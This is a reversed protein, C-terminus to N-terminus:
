QFHLMVDIASDAFPAALYETHVQAAAEHPWDSTKTALWIKMLEPSYLKGQLDKWSVLLSKAAGAVPEMGELRLNGFSVPNGEDVDIVLRVIHRAEDVQAKPIAGFNVYGKSAYLDRLNELGRGIETSNFHEGTKSPFQSRLRDPTFVKTDEFVIEGLTYLAGPNVELTCDACRGGQSDEVAFLQPDGAQANYYGSNRLYQRV